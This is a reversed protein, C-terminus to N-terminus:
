RVMRAKQINANIENDDNRKIKDFYSELITLDARVKNAYERQDTAAIRSLQAYARLKKSQAQEYMQIAESSFRPDLALEKAATIEGDSASIQVKIKDYNEENSYDAFYDRLGKNEGALNLLTTKIGYKNPIVGTIKNVIPLRAGQELGDVFVGAGSAVLKRKLINQEIDQSLEDPQGVPITNSVQPIEISQAAAQAAAQQQMLREQTALEDAFQTGAPATTNAVYKESLQRVHRPKLGLLTRGDPTKIGSLEGTDTDRLVKVGGDSIKKSSTNSINKTPITKSPPTIPTIPEEEKKKKPTFVPKFYDKYSVM